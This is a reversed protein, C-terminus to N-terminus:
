LTHAPLLQHKHVPGEAQQVDEFLVVELRVAGDPVAQDLASAEASLEGASKPQQVAHGAAAELGVADREQAEDTGAVHYARERRPRAAM